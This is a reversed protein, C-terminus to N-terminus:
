HARLPPCCRSGVGSGYTLPPKSSSPVPKPAPRHMSCPRYRMPGFASCEAACDQAASSLLGPMAAITRIESRVGNWELQRADAVDEDDEVISVIVVRKARVLFPMAANVARAAEATEKWCVMITGTLASGAILV